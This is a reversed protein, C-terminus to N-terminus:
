SSLPPTSPSDSFLDQVTYLSQTLGKLNHEGLDVFRAGAPLHDRVAETMAQSLVIQGGRASRVMRGLAYLAVNPLYDDNGRLEAPGLNLAMNVRLPDSTGWVEVALQRQAALAAALAQGPEAFAAIFSDGMMKFVRGGHQAMTLHLLADHRALLDRMTDPDREWRPTFGEIDSLLFTVMGTPLATTATELALAEMVERASAPRADPQKSLLRVILADLAPPTAPNHARPPVPAAYLHQTVLTALNNGDFPAQGTTLEYLMVGLAYLDSQPSPPKGMLLEPALYTFTGVLAGEETLRPSSSDVTRALGFDMLKLSPESAPHNTLLLQNNSIPLQVIINEPKLDRHIIGNAHAHELAACIQRALALTQDLNQPHFDRLTQGEVLEMVIFPQGEAEGADYVAVINPHNLKAAAQAEALLRAKGETGLGTANLVKVAVARNLMTDRARYVTGMGGHGLESDIRYRSLLVTNLM